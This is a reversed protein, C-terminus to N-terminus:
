RLYIMKSISHYNGALIQCFYIGSSLNSADFNVEYYGPDKYENVLLAVENGLADFVKLNVFVNEKVSYGIQTVPNFPNPYNQKLSYGYSGQNQKTGIKWADGYYITKSDSYPSYNNALDKTKIRYTASLTGSGAYSINYDIFETASGNLRTLESFDRGGPSLRREIVIATNQNFVDPEKSSSWSLKPHSDDGTYHTSIAFNSPTLPAVDLKAYVMQNNYLPKWFTYVDNSVSSLVLNTYYPFDDSILNENSWNVSSRHKIDGDALYIIHTNNDATTVAGMFSTVNVWSELFVPNSWQTSSLDRTKYYLDNHFQGMGSVHLYYFDYLTSNNVCVKERASLNDVGATVIQSDEWNGLYKDRTRAPGSNGPINGQGSNFSVHVRNPSVDITPYGGVMDTEDTVNKYYIWDSFDDNLKYYYTESYGGGADKMAFVLHLGSSDQYKIDIGTCQNYGANITHPIPEWTVGIDDSFKAKILNGIKYVVFIYNDNGSVCPFEGAESSEITSSRVLTGASNILNYKISNTANSNSLVIHHGERNTFLDHHILYPENISTTQPSSWTQATLNSLTCTITIILLCNILHWTLKPKFYSFM